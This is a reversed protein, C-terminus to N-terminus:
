VAALSNREKRSLDKQTLDQTQQAHQAEKEEKTILEYSNAVDDSISTRKRKNRWVKAGARDEKESRCSAILILTM